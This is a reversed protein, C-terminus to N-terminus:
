DMELLPDPDQLTSVRLARALANAPGAQLVQFNLFFSV